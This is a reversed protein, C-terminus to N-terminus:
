MERIFYGFFQITQQMGAGEEEVLYSLETGGVRLRNIEPFSLERDSPMVGSKSQRMELGEYSSLGKEFSPHM